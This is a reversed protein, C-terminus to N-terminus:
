PGRHSAIDGMHKPTITTVGSVTFSGERARGLRSSLSRQGANNSKGAVATRASSTEKRTTLWGCSRLLPNRARAVIPNTIPCPVEGRASHYCSFELGLGPDPEIRLVLCTIGVLRHNSHRNRGLAAYSRFSGPIRPLGGSARTRRGWLWRFACGRWASKCATGCAPGLSRAGKECSDERQCSEDGRLLTAEM